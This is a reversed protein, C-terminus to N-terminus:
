APFSEGKIPRIIKVCRARSDTSKPIASELATRMDGSFQRNSFIRGRTKLQNAPIKNWMNAILFNM